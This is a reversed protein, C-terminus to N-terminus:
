DDSDSAKQAFHAEIDRHGEMVNVVEFVDGVYHFFILYNNEPFSRIDEGIELRQRGM